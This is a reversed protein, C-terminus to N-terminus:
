KLALCDGDTNYWDRRFKCKWSGHCTDCTLYRGEKPDYPYDPDNEFPNYSSAQWILWLYYM